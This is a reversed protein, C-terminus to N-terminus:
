MGSPHMGVLFCNEFELAVQFRLLYLGLEVPIGIILRASRISPKMAPFHETFM